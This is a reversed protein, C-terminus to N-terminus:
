QHAEHIVVDIEIPASITFGPVVEVTEGPRPRVIRTTRGDEVLYYGNKSKVRVGNQVTM